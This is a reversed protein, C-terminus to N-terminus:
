KFHMTELIKAIGEMEGAEAQQLPPRERVPMLGLLSMAGKMAIHWGMPFAVDFFPEEYKKVIKLAGQYDQREVANYFEEEIDPVFSGVGVLYSQVGFLVCSLFKRMSGGAVIIAMRESLNTALKYRLNENGSEEKMGILNDIELLRKCLGVSFQTTPSVGAYASRMPLGHILLGIDVAQAISEFFSIIRDDNYYRESYYLLISDAGIQEAYKAFEVAKQTSGVMPNAAITIAKKQNAEVVVRNFERIEEETLLNFRSTGATIMITRVNKSNLFNVYNRISDFDISHDENFAPPIPYVPGKIKRKLGQLDSAM